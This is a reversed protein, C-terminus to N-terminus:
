NPHNKEWSERTKETMEQLSKIREQFAQETVKPELEHLRFDIMWNQIKEFHVQWNPPQPIMIMHAYSLMPLMPNRTWTKKDRSDVLIRLLGPIVQSRRLVEQNEENLDMWIQDAIMVEEDLIRNWM